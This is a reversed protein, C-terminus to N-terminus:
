LQDTDTKEVDVGDLCQVPKVLRKLYTVQGKSFKLNCSVNVMDLDYFNRGKTQDSLKIISQMDVKIYYSKKDYGIVFFALCRDGKCLPLKIKSRRSM